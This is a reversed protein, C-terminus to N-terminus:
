EIAHQKLDDLLLMFEHVLRRLHKKEGSHLDVPGVVDCVSSLIGEFVVCHKELEAIIEVPSGHARRRRPSPRQGAANVQRKKRLTMALRLVAASTLELEGDRTAEVLKRYGEEPVEAM